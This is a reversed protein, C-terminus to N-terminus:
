IRLLTIGTCSRTSKCYEDITRKEIIIQKSASSAHIMKLVDNERYVIGLHSYDLGGMATAFIIIDGTLVADRIALINGHPIVIYVDRSMNQEIEAIKRVENTNNKLRPYLWPHKSMFNIDKEVRSGGLKKTINTFLGDKENNAIWDIMYHLRSSYGDIVGDRYRIKQLNNRFNEWTVEESIVTHTLAICSEVFTTCDFEELNVILQEAGKQELTSAVYPKGIFFKATYVLIENAPLDRYESIYSIYRDFILKSRLEKEESNKESSHSYITVNSLFLM